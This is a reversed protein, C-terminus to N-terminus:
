HDSVDMLFFDALGNLVIISIRQLTRGNFFGITPRRWGDLFQITPRTWGNFFVIIPHTWGDLFKIIPHTWGNFLTKESM